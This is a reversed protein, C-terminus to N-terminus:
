LQGNLRQQYINEKYLPFEIYLSRIYCFVQGLLSNELGLWIIEKTKNQKNVVSIVFYRISCVFNGPVLSRTIGLEVTDCYKARHTFPFSLQIFWNCIMIRKRKGICFKEVSYITAIHNTFAFYFQWLHTSVHLIMVAEWVLYSLQTTPCPVEDENSLGKSLVYLVRDRLQESM